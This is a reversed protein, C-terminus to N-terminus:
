EYRLATMPDVKMAKRAPIYSALLAVVVLLLSVGTFVLPDTASVGYLLSTIVRTLAFAGALGIVLGVITLVLGQGLILRLIDRPRAGLAIRVGIEQTRQGVSYSIVGYMGFATLALALVAFTTMLFMIFRRQSVNQDLLYEVTRIKWMPQDKDVAWIAKRVPESISLPEVNTRVVLTAFIHPNQSYASYIQPMTKEDLQFQKADGVLGIVTATIKEEPFQLQKGLPDEDPWYRRALTQNVLIVPPANADDQETFARGKILPIGITEFYGPSVRNILAKPEEGKAPAPRGPLVFSTTGGNGSFPLGLVLSASKVGPVERVREVVQRHFNWQSDAQPYKNRPLRYEMTLLNEPNFGPSVHLVRYFSSILLGTGILLVLSLAVQSVVFIARLRKQGAGEGSGRGGEKLTKVLNTKSLQLAPVLGFVIGTLVSVALAFSLVRVDMHPVQGGPLEGVPNAAMLVDVGWLSILLGFFGGVLGLLITETLLQRVVRARSAGLAVRVAVERRRATGRALTMNAMNACTILLIFGVAGLLTWLAPRVDEVIMGHLSVLEPERGGNEEPYSQALRGAITRMESQAANLTIGKKLRGIVPTDYSAREPKYNPFTQIPLWIEIEDIPFRFGAPMIGIITFPEGNLILVKGVLNPDAGFRRQWLEHNVVAVREAGPEDERPAFTRGTAPQVDLMQFFSASVFGGRVRDPREVGTLNVSQVNFASLSEFVNNQERYDQFNPFSMVDRDGGTKEFVMVLGDADRFPLPRLLVANVVSFIATNAGIGLALILVTLASFGPKKALMRLGYRVDQWLSTM